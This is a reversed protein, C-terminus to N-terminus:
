KLLRCSDPPLAKALRGSSLFRVLVWALTSLLVMGGTRLAVLTRSMSGQLRKHTKLCRDSASALQAGRQVAFVLEECPLTFRPLAM